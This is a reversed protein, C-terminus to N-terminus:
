NMVISLVCFPEEFHLGIWIQIKSIWLLQKRRDLVTERSEETNNFLAAPIKTRM